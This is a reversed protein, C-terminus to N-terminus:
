VLVGPGGASEPLDGLPDEQQRQLYDPGVGGGASSDERNASDKGPRDPLDDICTCNLLHTCVGGADRAWMVFVDTCEMESLKTDCDKAKAVAQRTMGKPCDTDVM